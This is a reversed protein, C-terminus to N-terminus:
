KNKKTSRTRVKLAKRLSMLEDANNAWVTVRGGCHMAFLDTLLAYVPSPNRDPPFLPEPGDGEKPTFTASFAPDLIGFIETQDICLGMLCASARLPSGPAYIQCSDELKEQGNAFGFPLWHLMNDCSAIKEKAGLGLARGLKGVLGGADCTTFCRSLAAQIDNLPRLPRGTKALADHKAAVKDYLKKHEEDRRPQSEECFEDSFLGRRRRFEADGDREFAPNQKQPVAFDIDSHERRIQLHAQDRVTRAWQVFEDHQMAAGDRVFAHVLGVLETAPRSDVLGLPRLDVHVSDALLGLGLNLAHREAVSACETIVAHAMVMLRDPTVDRAYAIRAAQGMRHLKSTVDGEAVDSRSVGDLVTHYGDKLTVPEDVKQRVRELCTVLRPDIRVFRAFNRVRGQMPVHVIFPAASTTPSMFEYLQFHESVSRFPLAQSPCQGGVECCQPPDCMDLLPVSWDTVVPLAFEHTTLLPDTPSVALVSVGPYEVTVRGLLGPESPGAGDLARAQDAPAVPAADRKMDGSKTRAVLGQCRHKLALDQRRRAAASTPLALTLTDPNQRNWELDRRAPLLSFLCQVQSPLPSSELCAQGCLGDSHQVFFKVVEGYQAQESGFVAYAGPLPRQLSAAAYIGVGCQAAMADLATLAPVFAQAVLLPQGGIQPGRFYVFEESIGCGSAHDCTGCTPSETAPSASMCSTFRAEDCSAPAPKTNPDALRPWEAMLGQDQQNCGCLEQRVTVPLPPLHPCFGEDKACLRGDNAWGLLKFSDVFEFISLQNDAVYIDMSHIMGNPWANTVVSRPVLKKLLADVEKLPLWEDNDIDFARFVGELNDHHHENAYQGIRVAAVHLSNSITLQNDSFNQAQASAVTALAAIVFLVTLSELWPVVKNRKGHGFARWGNQRGQASVHNEAQADEFDIDTEAIITEDDVHEYIVNVVVDGWARLPALQDPRLVPPDEFFHQTVHWPAIKTRRRRVIVVVLVVIALLVLSSVVAAAITRSSLKNSVTACAVDSTISAAAAIRQGDPCSSVKRCVLPHLADQYEDQQCVVVQVEFEEQSVLGNAEMALLSFEHLDSENVAQWWVQWVALTAGATAAADLTNEPYTCVSGGHRCAALRQENLSRVTGVRAVPHRKIAVMPSGSLLQLAEPDGGDFDVAAFVGLQVPQLMHVPAVLPSEFSWTAGVVRALVPPSPTPLVRIRIEVATSLPDVSAHWRRERVRAAVTVNGNFYMTPHFVLTGNSHLVAKGAKAPVVAELEYSLDDGEADTALIAITVPANEPTEPSADAVHVAPPTNVLGQKAVFVALQHSAEISGHSSARRGTAAARTGCFPTRLVGQRVDIVASDAAEGQCAEGVEHWQRAAWDFVAVVLAQRSANLIAADFAIQVPLLPPLGGELPSVYFTVGTFKDLRGRLKRSLLAPPGAVAALPNSVYGTSEANFGYGNLSGVFMAGDVPEPPLATDNSGTDPVTLNLVIDFIGSALALGREAFSVADDRGGIALVTVAPPPDVAYFVSVAKEEQGWANNTLKLAVTYRGGPQMALEVTQNSTQQTLLESFEQVTEAAPSDAVDYRTVELTRASLQVVMDEGQSAFVFPVLQLRLAPGFDQFVAVEAQLIGSDSDIMNSVNVLVDAHGFADILHVRPADMGLVDARWVDGNLAQARVSDIEPPTADIRLCNAQKETRLGAANTARVRMCYVVGHQLDLHELLAQPERGVSTYNLVVVGDDQLLAVEYDTVPSENDIALWHAELAHTNSSFGALAQLVGHEALVQPDFAAPDQGCRSGTPQNDNGAALQDRACAKDNSNRFLPPTTDIVMGQSASAVRRGAGDTAAVTVFYQAPVFELDTTNLSGISGVGGVFDSNDGFSAVGERLADSSNRWAGASLSLGSMTLTLSTVDASGQGESCAASEGHECLLCPRASPSAALTYNPGVFQWYQRALALGATTSLNVAQWASVDARGPRTGVAVDYRLPSTTDYYAGAWVQCWRSPPRGVATSRVLATASWPKAPNPMAPWQTTPTWLLLGFTGPGELAPTDFIEAVSQGDLRLVLSWVAPLGLVHQRGISLSYTHLQSADHTEPLPVWEFQPYRGPAQVWLLVGPTNDTCASSDGSVSTALQCQLVSSHMLHAGVLTATQNGAAVAGDEIWLPIDGVDGDASLVLVMSLVAAPDAARVLDASVQAGSGLEVPRAVAAGIFARARPNQRVQLQLGSSRSTLLRSDTSFRTPLADHTRVREVVTSPLTTWPGPLAPQLLQAVPAQFNDVTPACIDRAQQEARAANHRELWMVQVHETSAQFGSEADAFMTHGQHVQGGHPPQEDLVFAIAAFSAAQGVNNIARAYVVYPQGPQLAAGDNLVYARADSPLSVVSSMNAAWVTSADTVVQCQGSLVLLQYMQIGSEPDRAPSWRVTIGDSQSAVYMVGTGMDAGLGDVSLAGVEPPTNDMIVANSQAALAGDATDVARVTIYYTVNMALSLNTLTVRVQGPERRFNVGDIVEQETRTQSQPLVLEGLVTPADSPCTLRGVVSICHLPLVAVDLDDRHMTADQPSIGVGIEYYMVDLPSQFHEFHVQLRDLEPGQVPDAAIVSPRMPEAVGAVIGDSVTVTQVGNKSVATVTAFYRRGPSLALGTFKVAKQREVSTDAVVNARSALYRPNDGVSVRYEAVVSDDDTAADIAHFQSWSASFTTVSGQMELDLGQHPGDRVVGPLPLLPDINIGNSAVIRQDGLQNTVRIQSLYTRDRHLQVNDVTISTVNTSRETCAGTSADFRACLLEFDHVPAGTLETVGYEYAVAPCPDQIHWMASVQDLQVQFALDFGSAGDFVHAPYRGETSVVVGSSVAIATLGAQNWARVTTYLTEGGVLPRDFHGIVAETVQGVDHFRKVDQLGPRTGVAVEYAAIGTDSDEFGSWRVAVQSRSRQCKGAADGVSASGGQIIVVDNLHMVAGAAPPTTDLVIINSAVTTELGAANTARLRAQYFNGHPEGRHLSRSHIGIDRVVLSGNRPVWRQRFVVRGPRSQQAQELTELALEVQIVPSEADLPVDWACEIVALQSIANSCALKGLVPPTRDVVIGRSLVPKANALGSAKVATVSLVHSRGPVLEAAPFSLKSPGFVRDYGPLLVNPLLSDTGPPFGAGLVFHDVSSALIDIEEALRSSTSGPGATWSAQVTEPADTYLMPQDPSPFAWGFQAATVTPLETDVTVGSSVAELVAGCGTTARVTAYYRTGHRLDLVAQAGSSTIGVQTHALTDCQYPQTGVCWTYAVIGCRESTFGAFSITISKRSTQTDLDNEFDAGDRVQGTTDGPVQLWVPSCLEASELGSLDIARACLRYVSGAELSLPVVLTATDIHSGPVRVPAATVAASRWQEPTPGRAFLEFRYEALGSESDLSQLSAPMGEAVHWQPLDDPTDGLVMLDRTEFALLSPPTTDITAGNSSFVVARGAGNAAQLRVSYTVRPRLNLVPTQFSTASPDVSAWEQEAPYVRRGSSREVLAFGLSQIGSEADSCNWNAAWVVEVTGDSSAKSTAGDVGHWYNKDTGAKLGDGLFHLLVPTEDVQVASTTTEATAHAGNIARVRVLYTTGHQLSLDHRDISTFSCNAAELHDYFGSGDGCGVSRFTLYREPDSDDGVAYHYDAIGSEPDAFGAWNAAVSTGQPSWAQHRGPSSGAWARGPTPPSTDLYFGDSSASVNQVVHGQNFAWVTAFYLVNSSLTRNGPLRASATHAHPSAPLPDLVDCEGPATGVCWVMRGIGSEPDRFNDYNIALEREDQVFFLNHGVFPGDNVVGALPPSYDVLFPRARAMASPLEVNNVSRMRAWIFVGEPVAPLSQRLATLLEANADDEPHTRECHGDPLTTGICHFDWDRLLCDHSTQGLCLQIELIHSLNDYTSYHASLVKTDADFQVGLVAVMVPPTTDLVVPQAHCVTTVLTGGFVVQNLGQVTAFYPGDPLVPPTLPHALGQNTWQEQSVLHAHPDSWNYTQTGCVSTGFAMLMQSLGSEPDRWGDMFLALFSSTRTYWADRGNIVGNFVAGPKSDVLIRHNPGTVPQFGGSTVAATLRDAVTQNSRPTGTEGPLPPTLDIRVGASSTLTTYGLMNRVRMNWFYRQGHEVPLEEVMLTGALRDTDLDHWTQVDDLDGPGHAVAYQIREIATEDQIVYNLVLSSQAQVPVLNELQVVPPTMDYSPLSCSLVTTASESNTAKVTVFLQRASDVAPNPLALSVTESPLGLSTPSQVDAAGAFFGAQWTVQELMSEPENGRVTIKLAPNEPERNPVQELLCEQDAAARRARRPADKDSTWGPPEPPEPPAVTNRITNCAKANCLDLVGPPIYRQVLGQAEQM